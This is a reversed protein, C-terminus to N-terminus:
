IMKLDLAQPPLIEFMGKNKTKRALKLLARDKTLLIDAHAHLAIELFKQDDKDSCVPLGFTSQETKPLCTIYQDFQEIVLAKIEPTVPLHPYDLVCLWENRCDERTIVDIQKSTLAQMLDQWRPDKFVFLDLCVNTDLVIRKKNTDM